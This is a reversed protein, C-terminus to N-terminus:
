VTPRDVLRPSMIFLGASLSLSLSLPSFRRSDVVGRVAGIEDASPTVTAQVTKKTENNGVVVPHMSPIAASETQKDTQRQSHTGKRVIPQNNPQHWIERQSLEDSLRHPLDDGGGCWWSAQQGTLAAILEQHGRREQRQMAPMSCGVVQWGFQKM